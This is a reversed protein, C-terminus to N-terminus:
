DGSQIDARILLELFDRLKKQGSPSLKMYVDVYERFVDSQEMAKIIREAEESVSRNKIKDRGFLYDVSVDFYDALKSITNANPMVGNRWAVLNGTSIDLKELVASPTIGRENCLGIFRDYFM